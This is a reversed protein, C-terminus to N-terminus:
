RDSFPLFTTFPVIDSLPQSFRLAAGYCTLPSEGASVQSTKPGVLLAKGKFPLVHVKAAWLRQLPFLVWSLQDQNSLLLVPIEPYATFSPRVEHSSREPLRM